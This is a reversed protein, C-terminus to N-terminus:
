EFQTSDPPAFKCRSACSVFKRRRQRDVYRCSSTTLLTSVACIALLLRNATSSSMEAASRSRNVVVQRVSLETPAAASRGKFITAAGSSLRVRGRATLSQEHSSQYNPQSRRYSKNARQKSTYSAQSRPRTIIGTPPKGIILCLCICLTTGLRSLLSSETDGLYRM